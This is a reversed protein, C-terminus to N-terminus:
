PRRSHNRTCIGDNTHHRLHRTCQHESWTFSSTESDRVQALLTSCPTTDVRERGSILPHDSTIGYLSPSCGISRDGGSVPENVNAGSNILVTATDADDLPNECVLLLPTEGKASKLNVDLKVDEIIQELPLRPESPLTEAPNNFGEFIDDDNSPKSAKPTTILPLATIYNV